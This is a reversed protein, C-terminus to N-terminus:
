VGAAPLLRHKLFNAVKTLGSAKLQQMPWVQQCDIDWLTESRKAKPDTIVQLISELLNVVSRQSFRGQNAEELADL